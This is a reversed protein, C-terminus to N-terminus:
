DRAARAAETALRHQDAVLVGYSFANQGSEAVQESIRRLVEVSVVADQHEGLVTQLREASAALASASKGLAPAAVEAAYRARKGAKRASHLKEDQPDRDAQELKKALTREARDLYKSLRGAPQHALDTFPPDTRWRALELVLQRYREGTLAALLAQTAQHLEARLFSDIQEGVPGIVLEAPLARVARSLRSRLVELDRVPGLVGAFWALEDGLRGAPEAQFLAAFSRLTARTRRTAVRTRHVAEPPDEAPEDDFPTSSVACHGGVLADCQARLYDAILGAASNPGHRDPHGHVAISLGSRGDARQVAGRSTLDAAAQALEENGGAPGRSLRLERWRSTTLAISRGDARIECDALALQLEGARDRIQYETRSIRLTLVARLDDPAWPALLRRLEEPPSEGRDPVTEGHDPASEGRDSWRQQYDGADLRWGNATRRVTIGARLLTLEGTDFYGLETEAGAVAQWDTGVAFDPAIDFTSM